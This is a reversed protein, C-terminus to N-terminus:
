LPPQISGLSIRRGHWEIADWDAGPEPITVFEGTTHSLSTRTIQVDAIVNGAADLVSARELEGAPATTEIRGGWRTKGDSRVLISRWRQASANAVILAQTKPAPLNVQRSREAIQTYTYASMWTPNCYGM